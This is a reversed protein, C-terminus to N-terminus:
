KKPKNLLRAIFKKGVEFLDDKYQGNDNKDWLLLAIKHAAKGFDKEKLALKLITGVQDANLKKSQIAKGLAGMLLPSLAAMTKKAKSIDTQTEEALTAAIDDRTDGLIHKLIKSGDNIKSETFFDEHNSLINGDHKQTKLAEWLAQAGKKDQANEALGKLLLPMAKQALASSQSESIGLSKVAQQQFTKQLSSKILQESLFSM